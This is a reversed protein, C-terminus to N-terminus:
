LLILPLCFLKDIGKFKFAKEDKEKHASSAKDSYIMQDQNTEDKSMVLFLSYQLFTSFFEYTLESSRLSTFLSKCRKWILLFVLCVTIKIKPPRPPSSPPPVLRRIAPHASSGAPRSAQVYGSFKSITM